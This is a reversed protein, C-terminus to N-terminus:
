FSCHSLELLFRHTDDYKYKKKKNPIIITLNKNDVYLLWWKGYPHHILKSPIDNYCNTIVTLRKIKELLDPHKIYIKVLENLSKTPIIDPLFKIIITIINYSLKENSKKLAYFLVCDLNKIIIQTMKKLTFSM